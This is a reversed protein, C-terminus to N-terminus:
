RPRFVFVRMGLGGAVALGGLAAVVASIPFANGGTEPVAQPPMAAIAAQLKASSEETAAWTISKIKGDQLVYTEGAELPAVGPPMGAGWTLTKTTVTDGEVQVIEIQIQFDGAVLEEFLVRVEAAGSYVSEKGLMRSTYVVDDTLLAMAADVDGANLTEELAALVAAPDTDQAYLAVPLALTLVLVTLVLIRTKIRREKKKIIQSIM